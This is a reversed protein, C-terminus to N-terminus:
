RVLENSREATKQNLKQCEATAEAILSDLTSTKEVEQSMEPVYDEKSINIEKLQEWKNFHFEVKDEIGDPQPVLVRDNVAMIVPKDNSLKLFQQQLNIPAVIGIVDAKEIEDQIEYASNITKNIQTINVNDGLAAKQEPSMEHRSFWLINQPKETSEPIYDDKKVTIEKLREWKNFQFEVKSETGDPQPVLVRDNVAMIVPKDGAVKLFQQQLHIPAVIAIVDSNRIEDQLEFASNISKNIQNVEVNKGLANKQDPTMEHRSFWMVKQKMTANEKRELDNKFEKEFLPCKKPETKGSPDLLADHWDMLIADPHGEAIKKAEDPTRASMFGFECGDFEVTYRPQALQTVSQGNLDNEVDVDTEYLAWEEVNWLGNEFHAGCCHKALEEEAHIAADSIVDDDDHNKYFTKVIEPAIKTNGAVVDGVKYKEYEEPTLLAHYRLINYHTDFNSKM